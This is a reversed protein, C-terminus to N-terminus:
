KASCIAPSSSSAYIALYAKLEDHCCTCGEGAETVTRLESITGLGLTTIAAIVQEETVKLCRCVVREACSGPATCSQCSGICNTSLTDHLMAPLSTSM